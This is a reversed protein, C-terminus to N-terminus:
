PRGVVLEVLAVECRQCWLTYHNDPDAQGSLWRTHGAHRRGNVLQNLALVQQGGFV